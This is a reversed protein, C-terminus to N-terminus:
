TGLLGDSIGIQKLLYSISLKLFRRPSHFLIHLSLKFKAYPITQNVKIATKFLMKVDDASLYPTEIISEGTNLGNVFNGMEANNLWNNKISIQYAETGRHPVLVGFGCDNVGIKRLESAYKITKEVQDKREGPMGILFFADVTLKYKRCWKVVQKVKQLNLKKHMLNDVVWQSGSEPAVITRNCGSQKMKKILEEDVSDARIGNPTSWEIKWKKSIIKDCIKKAREKNSTFNDDEIDFHQVKYKTILYEMESIVNDVSRPRWMRGMVLHGACFSCTFPCGRSTYITAWRKGFTSISRSSRINKAAEFYKEMPLLEWAVSYNDLDTLPLGPKNIKIRNDKRFVLGPVKDYKNNKKEIQKVLSLFSLEGEGKIAYDINKDDLITESYTTPYSGGVVIKIKRDVEKVLRAMEHGAKSQATFPMTIGVIDPAFKRIRNKIEKKCLGVYRYKGDEVIEEQDNGEALVDLIVVDYHNKLLVGAIYGIGLPQFTNPPYNIKFPVFQGPNILLIKM